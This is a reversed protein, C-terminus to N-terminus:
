GMIYIKDETTIKGSLILSDLQKEAVRNLRYQVKLFEVM